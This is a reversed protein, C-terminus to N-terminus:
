FGDPGGPAFNLTYQAGYVSSDQNDLVILARYTGDKVRSMDFTFRVSTGPYIRLREGEFKGAPEGKETYLEVYSVPRLWLEGVNEVDAQLLKRDEEQVLEVNIFKLKRAGATGINTVVQVAYRMTQTVGFKVRDKSAVDKTPAARPVSEVMIVSWYTGVLDTREPIKVRFRVESNTLGPITLQNPSFTIWSANSRDNKGPADYSSQGLHNFAYDTQYLRVTEPAPGNNRLLIIREVTEGPKCEKEHTMGNLVGVQARVAPPGLVLLGILILRFNKFRM